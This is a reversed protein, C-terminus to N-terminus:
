LIHGVTAAACHRGESTERTLRVFVRPESGPASPAKRLNSRVAPLATKQVNPRLLAALYPKPTRVQSKPTNRVNCRSGFGPLKGTIGQLKAVSTYRPPAAYGLRQM